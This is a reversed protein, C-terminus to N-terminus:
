SATPGGAKIMALVAAYSNLYNNGAYAIRNPGTTAEQYAQSAETAPNVDYVTVPNLYTDGPNPPQQGQSVNQPSVTGAQPAMGTLVASPGGGEAGMSQATGTIAGAPAAGTDAGTTRATQVGPDAGSPVASSSQDQGAPQAAGPQQGQQQYVGVVGAAQQTTQSDVSLTSYSGGSWTSLEQKVTPDNKVADAANGNFLASVLGRYKGDMLMSATAQLGQSWNQFQQAGGAGTTSGGEPRSTGL